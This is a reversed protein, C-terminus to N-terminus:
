CPQRIQDQNQALAALPDISLLLGAGREDNVRPVERGSGPRSRTAACISEILKLRRGLLEYALLQPALDVEKYRAALAAKQGDPHLHCRLSFLSGGTLTQLSGPVPALGGENGPSAPRL